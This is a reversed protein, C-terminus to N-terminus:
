EDNTMEVDEVSPAIPDIIAARRTGYQTLAVMGLVGIIAITQRLTITEHDYSGWFLALLPIVYTVMGAFLPGEKQVLRVFIYGSFGTGIIGLFLVSAIALPWGTPNQPPGLGFPDLLPEAVALPLLMLTSASFILATLPLTAVGHCARKIYVNSIAYGLPVSMAWLLHDMAFERHSGDLLILGMCVLGGLVGITQPLTPRVGLMPISVLITLLPTFAVLMGVFSHDMGQHIVCPQIVFPVVNGLLAVLAIHPMLELKFRSKPTAFWWVIGLVISAGLVRGLAVYVPGMALAARHMLIFNSGFTVCVIAFLVYPM